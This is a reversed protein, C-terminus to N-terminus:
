MPEFEPLPSKLLAPELRVSNKLRWAEAVEANEDSFGTVEPCVAINMFVKGQAWAQKCTLNYRCVSPCMSEIEFCLMVTLYHSEGLQM